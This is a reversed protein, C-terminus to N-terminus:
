WYGLARLQRKLQDSFEMNQVKEILPSDDALIKWQAMKDLCKEYIPLEDTHAHLDKKEGPDNKLNFIEIDSSDHTVIIKYTLSRCSLKSRFENESIALRETESKGNMLGVLSTGLMSEPVPIHLVDLVTPAIDISRVQDKVRKPSFYKENSIILPVHILEDYVNKGHGLGSHDMLEEGHDSVFIVLTNDRLGLEDIKLFLEGIHKDTYAIEGDYLATLNKLDNKDPNKPDLDEEEFNAYQEVDIQTDTLFLHRFPEPPLYPFHPDYAQVFLFFKNDQNEQLWSFVRQNIDKIGGADDNYTDFGQNINFIKATEVGDTFAATRYGEKKLIEALTIESDALPVIFNNQGGMNDVVAQHQSPYRSTFISSYSPLSAAAQSINNEFLVSKDAFKDISPSTQRGYGYCSLHDARLTDVSILIINKIPSVGRKDAAYGKSGVLLLSGIMFLVAKRLFAKLTNIFDM